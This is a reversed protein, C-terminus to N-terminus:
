CPGEMEEYRVIHVDHAAFIRFLENACERDSEIRLLQGCRSFALKDHLTAMGPLDMIDTEEHPCEALFVCKANRREFLYSAGDTLKGDKIWLIRDALQQILYPEHCAMVVAMGAAKRSRIEEAFNVQSAADQGSLPEDLFLVDREGILAQIVAAKQLTGKSLYKMPTDLMNELFFSRVYKEFVALDEPSGEMAQMHRLFAPITMNIKDYRDPILAIRAQPSIRVSGGTPNTAGALIRILTSKGCGNEGVLAVAEGQRISLCIDDLVTHGGYNKSIHEACLLVSEM